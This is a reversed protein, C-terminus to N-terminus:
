SRRPAFARSSVTALALGYGAVLGGAHAALGTPFAKGFGGVASFTTPSAIAVVAVVGGFALPALVSATFLDKRNVAMAGVLCIVVFALDFFITLAGTLTLDLAVFGVSALLSTVIVGRGTMGPAPSHETAGTPADLDADGRRSIDLVTAPPTAATSGTIAAVDPGPSERTRTSSGHVDSSPEVPSGGGKGASLGQSTTM